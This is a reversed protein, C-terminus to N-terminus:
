VSYIWLANLTCGLLCTQFTLWDKAKAKREINLIIILM